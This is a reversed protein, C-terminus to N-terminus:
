LSHPISFIFMESLHLTRRPKSELPLRNELRSTLLSLIQFNMYFSYYAEAKYSQYYLNFPYIKSITVTRDDISREFKIQRQTATLSKNTGILYINFQLSFPHSYKKLIKFPFILM